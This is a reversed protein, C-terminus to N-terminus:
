DRDLDYYECTTHPKPRKTCARLIVVFDKGRVHTTRFFPRGCAQRGEPHACSQEHPRYLHPEVPPPPPQNARLTEKHRRETSIYALIAGLGAILAAGTAPDLGIVNVSKLPTEIPIRCRYGPESINLTEEIPDTRVSFQRLDLSNLRKILENNSFDEDLAILKEIHLRETDLVTAM